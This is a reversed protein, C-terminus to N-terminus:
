SQRCVDSEERARNVQEMFIRVREPDIPNFLSGNKIWTGICVGDYYQLLRYVNDGTAGGGLILPTNPLRKRVAIGYEHSQEATKGCVFLGDALCEEVASACAEDISKPLLAKAHPEFVDAFIPVKSGIRKKMTLIEMCQAQLLGTATMEAGSYCHEVRVYDADCADAVALSASGDWVMLVGLLLKPFHHKIACGLRTMYAIAEKSSDQLIPIDHFNQLIVSDYGYKDYLRVEELLQEEILHLPEGNSRISGPLAIPQAMGIVIKSTQQFLNM